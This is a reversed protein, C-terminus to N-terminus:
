EMELALFSQLVYDIKSISRLTVYYGCLDFVADLHNIVLSTNLWIDHLSLYKSM